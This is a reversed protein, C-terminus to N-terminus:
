IVKQTNKVQGILRKNGKSYEEGIWDIEYKLKFTRWRM